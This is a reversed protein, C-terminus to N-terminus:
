AGGGDRARSRAGDGVAVGCRRVVECRRVVGRWGRGVVRRRRVVECRGAVGCM